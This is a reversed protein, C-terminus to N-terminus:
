ELCLRRAGLEDGRIRPLRPRAEDAAVVRLRDRGGLLREGEGGLEAQGLRRVREAHAAYGAAVQPFPLPELVHAARERERELLALSAGGGDEM